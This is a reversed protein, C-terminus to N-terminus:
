HIDQVVCPRSPGKGSRGGLRGMAGANGRLAGAAEQELCGGPRLYLTVITVIAGEGPGIPCAGQRSAGRVAGQLTAGEESKIRLGAREFLNDINHCRRRLM